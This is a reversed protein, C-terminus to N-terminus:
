KPGRKGPSIPFTLCITLIRMIYWFLDARPILTDISLTDSVFYDTRKVTARKDLPSIGPGTGLKVRSIYPDILVTLNGDNIKWGATGLYTLKLAENQANIALMGFLAFLLLISRIACHQNRNNRM